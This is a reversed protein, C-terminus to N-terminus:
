GYNSGGILKLIENPNVGREQCLNYFATKPDGGHQNVYSVANQYAPNSALSQQPNTIQQNRRDLMELIPNAM